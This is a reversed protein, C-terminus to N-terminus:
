AAPSLDDGTGLHQQAAKLAGAAKGNSAKAAGNGNSKAAPPPTEPQERAVDDDFMDLQDRMGAWEAYVPVCDLTALADQLTMKDNRVATRLSQVFTHAKRNMGRQTEAKLLERRDAQIEALDSGNSDIRSLFSNYQDNSYADPGPKPSRPRGRPM